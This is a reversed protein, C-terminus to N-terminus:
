NQLFHTQPYTQMQFFYLYQYTGDIKLDTEEKLFVTVNKLNQCHQLFNIFDAAQFPIPYTIKINELVNDAPISTLNRLPLSNLDLEKLTSWTSWLTLHNFNVCYGILRNKKPSSLRLAKLSPCHSLISTTVSIYRTKNHVLRLSHGNQKVFDDFAELFELELFKKKLRTKIHLASLQQVKELSKLSSTLLELDTNDDIIIYIEKVEEFVVSWYNKQVAFSCKRFIIAPSLKINARNGIYSSHVPSDVTLRNLMPFRSPPIMLLSGDFWFSKFEIEKLVPWSEIKESWNEGMKRINFLRRQCTKIFYRWLSPEADHFALRSSHVVDRRILELWAKCALSAAKRSIPDLFFLIHAIIELPLSHICISTMIM